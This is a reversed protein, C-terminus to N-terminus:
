SKKFGNYLFIPFKFGNFYNVKYTNIKFDFGSEITEAANLISSKIIGNSVGGISPLGTVKKDQLVIYEPEKM